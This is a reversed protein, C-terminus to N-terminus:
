LPRFHIDTKCLTARPAWSAVDGALHCDQRPLNGDGSSVVLIAKRRRQCAISTGWVCLEAVHEAVWDGLRGVARADAMRPKRWSFLLQLAGTKNDAVTWGGGVLSADVAIAM